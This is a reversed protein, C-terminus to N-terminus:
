RRPTNVRIEQQADPAEPAEPKVIFRWRDDIGAGVTAFSSQVQLSTVRRLEGPEDLIWEPERGRYELQAMASAWFKPDELRATHEAELQSRAYDLEEESVGLKALRAFAGEFRGALDGASDEDTIGVAFILGSQRYAVGPYHRVGISSALRNRQMAEVTLRNALVRAALDLRRRTREDGPESGRAAVLVGTAPNPTPTSITLEFGPLAPESARMKAFSAPGVRDRPALSGLYIRALELAEERSVDGAIAVEIPNESVLRGLWQQAGDRTARKISEARLLGRRVDDQPEVFDNVVDNLFHPASRTRAEITRSERWVWGEFVQEEIVPDDLVVHSLQMLTELEDRQCSASFVLRDDEVYAQRQITTAALADRLDAVSRAPSAPELWIRSSAASLGATEASEEIRGGAITITMAVQSTESPVTRVHVRVGSSLWASAVGSRPHLEIEDISGADPADDLLATAVEERRPVVAHAPAVDAAVTRALRAVEETDPIQPMSGPLLVLTTLRSPEFMREAIANVEDLTLQPTLERALEASAEASMVVDGRTYREGLAFALQASTMDGSDRVESERTTVVETRAAELEHEMLGDRAIAGASAVVLEVLQDWAGSEGSANVLAVDMPGTMRGTWVEVNTDGVPRGDLFARVRNQLARAVLREGLRRRYDGITTQAGGASSIGFLEVVALVLQQDTAVISEPMERPIEPPGKPARAEGPDLDSLEAEVLREVAIPRADGVIVLTMSSAGYARDHFARLEGPNLTCIAEEMAFPMHRGITTGDLMRPLILRRLRTGLDERAREEDLVVPTSAMVLEDTLGGGRAIDALFRLGTTITADNSLPLAVTFSAREFDVEVPHRGWEAPAVAGPLDALARGADRQLSSAFLLKGVMLAAGQEGELEELSGADAYLRMAVQGPPNSHPMFVYRLGNDLEGITLTPDQPLAEGPEREGAAGPAAAAGVVLATALVRRGALALRSTFTRYAAM